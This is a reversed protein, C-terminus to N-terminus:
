SPQQMCDIVGSRSSLGAWYASYSNELYTINYQSIILFEPYVSYLHILYIICISM